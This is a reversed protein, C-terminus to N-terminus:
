LKKAPLWVMENTEAAYFMVGHEAIQVSMQPTFYGESSLAKGVEAKHADAFVKFGLKFEPATVYVETASQPPLPVLEYRQAEFGDYIADQAEDPTRSM